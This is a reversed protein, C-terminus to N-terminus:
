QLAPGRQVRSAVALPWRLCCVRGELRVQGRSLRAVVELLAPLLGPPGAPLVLGLPRPPLLLLLRQSRRLRRAPAVPRGAVVVHVPPLGQLADRHRLTLHALPQGLVRPARVGVALVEEAVLEAHRVLVAALPVCLFCVLLLPHGPPAKNVRRRALGLLVVHVRASRVLRAQLDQFLRPHLVLQRAARRRALLRRRGPVPAPAGRGVEVHVHAQGGEEAAELLRVEAPLVVRPQQPVAGPERAPPQRGPPVRREELAHM